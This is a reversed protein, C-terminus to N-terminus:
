ALWALGLCPLLKFEPPYTPKPSEKKRVQVCNKWPHENLICHELDCLEKRKFGREYHEEFAQPHVSIKKKKVTFDQKSIFFFTFFFTTQSAAKHQSFGWQLIMFAATKGCQKTAQCTFLARQLAYGHSSLPLPLPEPQSVLKQTHFAVTFM